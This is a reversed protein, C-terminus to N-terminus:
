MFDPLGYGDECMLYKPRLRLDLIKPRPYPSDENEKVRLLYLVLSFLGAVSDIANKLNAEKFKNVRHHKVDTYSKWWSPNTKSNPPWEEWPHRILDYQPILVEFTYFKPYHYTICERYHNIKEYPKNPNIISCLEKCLVDVESSASLLIRAFEVSYTKFNYENFEVFRTTKALDSEIALFFEWFKFSM